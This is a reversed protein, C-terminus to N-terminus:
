TGAVAPTRTVRGRRHSLNNGSAPDFLHMRSPDLWLDAESGETIRSDANLAVVLQTRMQESDLETALEALPRRVEDPAYFAIYAYQERGLWEIVDVHARFELGERRRRHDVARTDEFHEPRVGAILMHHDQVDDAVEPTLQVDGIPLRLTTGDVLAPMLNM